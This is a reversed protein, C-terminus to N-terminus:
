RKHHRPRGSSVLVGVAANSSLKTGQKCSLKIVTGQRYRRSSSYHIKGVSCHAARIRREVTSLHMRSSFSPVVCPPPPPPPPPHSAVTFTEPQPGAIPSTDNPSHALWLCILYTGATLPSTTAPTTFTGNVGVGDVLSQGSDAAFTTACPQGGASRITAYVNESAESTGTITITAQQGPAPTVPNVSATITGTAPRFTIQQTYPTVPMSSDTTLWICFVYTGPAGWNVAQQFNFSPNFSGNVTDGGDFLGYSFNTEGNATVYSGPDSGPTPGCPSGGPARYKVFLEEPNNATGGVTTGSVSFLRPVGAAPDSQGTTTTVSISASDALASGSCILLTMLAFLSALVCSCVPWSRRRQIARCAHPGHDIM